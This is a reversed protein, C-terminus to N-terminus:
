KVANYEWAALLAGDAADPSFSYVAFDTVVKGEPSTEEARNSVRLSAITPSMTSKKLAYAISTAVTKLRDGTLGPACVRVIVDVKGPQGTSTLVQDGDFRAGEPLAVGSVAAEVQRDTWQASTSCLDTATASDDSSCGAVLLVLVAACAALMKRM